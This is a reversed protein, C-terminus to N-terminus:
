PPVAVGPVGAVGVSVTAERRNDSEAAEVLLDAPDAVAVLLFDGAKVSAWPVTVAASAGPALAPVAASGLAREPLASRYAVAVSTAPAATAGHNHVTVEVADGSAALGVAAVALDAAQPDLVRVVGRMSPHVGCHYAFRGADPFARACAGSTRVACWAAGSADEVVSHTGGTWSWTVTEALGVTVSAPTFSFNAVSVTAGAAAALPALVLLAGLLLPSRM